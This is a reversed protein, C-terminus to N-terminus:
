GGSFPPLIAVIDGNKLVRDPSAYEANVAILPKLSSGAIQPFDALLKSQLELVTTHPPVQLTIEENGTMQRYLAFFKIRIKMLLPAPKLGAEHLM